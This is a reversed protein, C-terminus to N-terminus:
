LSVQMKYFNYLGWDGAKVDIKTLLVDFYEQSAEEFVVERYFRLLITIFLM